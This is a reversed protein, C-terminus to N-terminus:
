VRSSASASAEGSGSATAARVTSPASAAQAHPDAAQKRLADREAVAGTEIGARREVIDVAVRRSPVPASPAGSRGAVIEIRDAPAADALALEMDLFQQAGRM